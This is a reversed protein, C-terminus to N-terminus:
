YIQHNSIASLLIKEFEEDSFSHIWYTVSGDKRKIFNEFTKYLNICFFISFSSSLSLVTSSSTMSAFQHQHLFHQGNCSLSGWFSGDSSLFGLDGIQFEESRRQQWLSFNLFFASARYFFQDRFDCYFVLISGWRTLDCTQGGVKSFFHGDLTIDQHSSRVRSIKRRNFTRSILHNQSLSFDFM